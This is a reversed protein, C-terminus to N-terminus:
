RNPAKRERIDRRVRTPPSAPSSDHTMTMHWAASKASECLRERSRHWIPAWGLRAWGCWAFLRERGVRLNGTLGNLLTVFPSITSGDLVNGAFAM